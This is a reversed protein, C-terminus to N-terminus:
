PCVNSAPTWACAPTRGSVDLVGPDAQVTWTQTGANFVSLDSGEIPYADSRGSMAFRVGNVVTPNTEDLLRAALLLNPRSLGGPLAAALRLAEVMPWAFFFGSGLQSSRSAPHGAVTLLGTAFSVWTDGALKPDTLDKAGGNVVWWGDAASGDRGVVDRGVFTLSRCPSALILVSAADKIGSTAAAAITQTCTLGVTMNLFVDPHKAALSAMPATVDSAEPAVPEVQFDVKLRTTALFQRFGQEFSRGYDNQQVLAAVTIGPSGAFRRELLAGWLLGETTFSLQGGWVWPHNLPDGWAPHGSMVYPDPVCRTNLKDYVRMTNPTGLTQVAFVRSSDILKDVLPVTRTPDYADDETVTSITYTKGTSDTIGGQANVHDYYTKQGVAINGYDALPGSQAITQGLRITGGSLGGYPDWAVPCRTLDVAMGGPGTIAHGEPKWAWGREKARAM